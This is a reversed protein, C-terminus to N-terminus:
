AEDCLMGNNRVKTNDETQSGKLKKLEESQVTKDVAWHQIEGSATLLYFMSGFINIGATIFLVQRWQAQTKQM